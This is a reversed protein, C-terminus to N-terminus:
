MIDRMGAATGDPQAWDDTSGVLLQLIQPLRIVAHVLIQHIPRRYYINDNEM